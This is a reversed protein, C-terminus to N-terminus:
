QGGPPLGAARHVRSVRQLLCRHVLFCLDGLLICPRDNGRVKLLLTKDPLLQVGEILEDVRVHLHTLISLLTDGGCEKRRGAREGEVVYCM